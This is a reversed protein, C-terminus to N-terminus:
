AKAFSIWMDDALSGLGCAAFSDDEFSRKWSTPFGGAGASGQELDSVGAAIGHNVAERASCGESGGRPFESQALVSADVAIGDIASASTDAGAAATQNVLERGQLRLM